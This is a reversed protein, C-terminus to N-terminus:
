LGKILQEHVSDEVTARWIRPMICPNYYTFLYAQKTSSPVYGRTPQARLEPTAHAQLVHDACHKTRPRYDLWWIWHEIDAQMKPRAPKVAVDSLGCGRCRLNALGEGQLEKLEPVTFWGLIKM